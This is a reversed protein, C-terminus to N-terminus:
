FPCVHAIPPDRAFLIRDTLFHLMPRREIFYFGVPKAQLSSKPFFEDVLNLPLFGDSPPQDPDLGLDEGEVLAFPSKEVRKQGHNNSLIEMGRQFNDVAFLSELNLGSDDEAPATTSEPLQQEETSFRGTLELYEGAIEFWEEDTFFDYIFPHGYPTVGWVLNDEDDHIELGDTYSHPNLFKLRNIIARKTGRFSSLRQEDSANVYVFYTATFRPQKVSM